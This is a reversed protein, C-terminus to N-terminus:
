PEARDAAPRTHKRLWAELVDKTFSQAELNGAHLLWSWYAPGGAKCLRVPQM